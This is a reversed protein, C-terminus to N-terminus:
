RRNISTATYRGSFQPDPQRSRRKGPQAALASM